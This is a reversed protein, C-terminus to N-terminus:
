ENQTSGYLGLYNSGMSNYMSNFGASSQFVSQVNNAAFIGYMANASLNGTLAQSNYVESMSYNSLIINLTEKGYLALIQKDGIANPINGAANVAQGVQGQSFIVSFELSSPSYSLVVGALDQALIVGFGVLSAQIEGKSNVANMNAVGLACEIMSSVQDKNGILGGLQLGKILLQDRISKLQTIEKTNTQLTKGTLMFNDISKLAQSLVMNKQNLGNVYAGFDKLNKEVDLSLNATDNLYFGSLLTITSNLTKNNNRIFDSYDQLAKVIEGEGAQSGMGKAKFAVITLDIDACVDGTFISFYVLGQIMSRLRATDKLLESRLEIDKATMQVKHFKEAKGFTGALDSNDPKPFNVSIGILFGICLVSIFGIAFLLKTKTKM